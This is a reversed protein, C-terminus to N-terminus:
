PTGPIPEGSARMDGVVDAVLQMIGARAAVPDKALHSLSPFEAVRGVYEGDEPSYETRYTYM